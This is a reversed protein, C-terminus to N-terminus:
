PWKYYLIAMENNLPWKTYNGGNQYMTACFIQCGQDPSQSLRKKRPFISFNQKHSANGKQEAAKCNSNLSPHCFWWVRFVMQEKEPSTQVSAMQAPL